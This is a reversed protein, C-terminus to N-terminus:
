ECNISWVDILLGNALIVENLSELKKEDSEKRCILVIGAKLGTLRACHLSQGVAEYWKPAFDMEIAHTATVCDARTRDSMTLSDGGQKECWWELYQAETEFVKTEGDAACSIVALLVFLIIFLYKM